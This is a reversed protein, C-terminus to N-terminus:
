NCGDLCRQLAQQATALCPAPNRYHQCYRVDDDYTAQCGYQCLGQDSGGSGGGGDALGAMCDWYCGDDDGCQDSCIADADEVPLAPLIPGRVRDIGRQRFAAPSQTPLLQSAATGRHAMPRLAADATFGPLNM